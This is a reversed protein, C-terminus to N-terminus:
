VVPPPLDAPNPVDVFNAPPVVQVGERVAAPQGRPRSREYELDLRCGDLTLQLVDLQYKLQLNDTM